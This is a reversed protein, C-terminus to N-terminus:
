PAVPRNFLEGEERRRRTLGKLQRGQSVDFKMLAPAVGAYNGANLRSDELMETFHATSMNFAASCLADFQNQNLPVKVLRKVKQEFAAMDMKFIADADERTIKMGATVMPPGASRTHGFGIAWRPTGDKERTDVYAELQCSEFSQILATGAKGLYLDDNM